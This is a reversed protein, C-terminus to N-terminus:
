FKLKNISKAYLTTTTILQAVHEAAKAPDTDQFTNLIMGARATMFAQAKTSAYELQDADFEKLIAPFNEWGKYYTAMNKAAAYLDSNAKDFYHALYADNYYNVTGFTKQLGTLLFSVAQVAKKTDTGAAAELAKTFPDIGIPNQGLLMLKKMINMDAPLYSLGYRYSHAGLITHFVMNPTRLTNWDNGWEDLKDGYGEVGTVFANGLQHLTAGAPYVANWASIIDEVKMPTTLMKKSSLLIGSAATILLKDLSNIERWHETNWRASKGTYSVTSKPINGVVVLSVGLSKCIADKMMYGGKIPLTSLGGGQFLKGFGSPYPASTLSLPQVALGAAYRSLDLLRNKAAGPRVARKELLYSGLPASGFLSRKRLSTDDSEPDDCQDENGDCLDADCIPDNLADQNATCCLAKKRWWNCSIDSDGYYDTTLTVEGRDCTNQACDGKGIWNCTDFAKKSKKCCYNQGVDSARSVLDDNINFAHAVSDEDSQCAKNDCGTTWYCGSTVAELEVTCCLAKGGRSCRGTGSEGPSGGWSSGGIKVENAHCQGNCDGGGSGGGGGRWTCKDKMRASTPCCMPWGCQWDKDGKCGHTDYSVLEMDTGCDYSKVDNIVTENFKCGQGLFSNATETYEQQHNVKDLSNRSGIKSNGTFAKHATNDYDDLDSAWILSGSFGIDNAWDKKQKFSEADDYSIWQNDDWSFYKVAAEKDHVVSLARKKNKNLIDQIEYYALYGSTGTCVGKKAGGSFLCGPETCSPDALTFSRGYFGFGLAIKSPPIHVRWFLEVALKIETLNTHAQVVSGIPNSSDWIGHLDYSMLNVWDAYKMMGPLDFWRLYWFSSPATFSIELERGSKDFSSRLTKLLEIYNQTDDEKGGRDPAGPYEWDLDVGDYGYGNMFKLLNDAFKQRNSANRAINGFVSQTTTGNDSFTWGGISVFIKLNPKLDKLSVADQFTSTPTQADMTTIEFTKPDIYAFAYNVHTLAELPLDTAQTNHCDSRANWAEWYGIVRDLLKGGGGGPPKSFQGCEATADCHSSCGTGCYVPGYGCNGHSGPACTYDDRRSLA